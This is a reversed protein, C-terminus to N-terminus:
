KLLLAVKPKGNCPSIRLGDQCQLRGARLKGPASWEQQRGTFVRPISRQEGPSQRELSGKSRQGPKTGEVDARCLGRTTKVVQFQILNILENM